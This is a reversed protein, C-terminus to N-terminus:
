GVARVRRALTVWAVPPVEVAEVLYLWDDSKGPLRVPVRQGRYLRLRKWDNINLQLRVGGDLGIQM